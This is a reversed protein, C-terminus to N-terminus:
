ATLLQNKLKTLQMKISADFVFGDVEIKFGAILTEDIVLEAEVTKGLKKSVINTIEVIKANDLQKPAYLVAKAIKKHEFYLVQFHSLMDKLSAERGRRLVLSLLGIFDEPVLSLLIKQVFDLKQAQTIGPNSLIDVFEKNQEIIDLLDVVADNYENVLNKEIALDFLAKGYRMAVIKDM